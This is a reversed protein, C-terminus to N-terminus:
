LHINKYFFFCIKYNNLQIFAPNKCLFAPKEFFINNNKCSTYLQLFPPTKCAKVYYLIIKYNHINHIIQLFEANKVLVVQKIKLAVYRAPSSSQLLLLLLLFKTCEAKTPHSSSHLDRLSNDVLVAVTSLMRRVSAVLRSCFRLLM